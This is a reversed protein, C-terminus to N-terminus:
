NPPDSRGSRLSDFICITNRICPAATKAQERPIIVCTHTRMDANCYKCLEMSDFFTLPKEISGSKIRTATSSPGSSSGSWSPLCPSPFSNRRPAVGEARQLVQLSIPESLVSVGPGTRIARATQPAAVKTRNMAKESRDSDSKPGEHATEDSETSTSEGHTTTRSDDDKDNETEHVTVTAISQSATMGPKRSADRDQGSSRRRVENRKRGTITGARRNRAAKVRLAELAGEAASSNGLRPTSTGNGKVGQSSRASPEGAAAKLARIAPDLRSSSERRIRVQDETTFPPSRPSASHSRDPMRMLMAEPDARHDIGSVIWDDDSGKGSMSGGDEGGSEDDTGSEGSLRANMAREEEEEQARRSAEEWERVVGRLRERELEYGEREKRWGEEFKTRWTEWRDEAMKGAQGAADAVRTSMDRELAGIKDELLKVTTSAEDHQQQLNRSMELAQELDVSLNRSLELAQELDISLADLRAALATNRALIEENSPKEKSALSSLSRNSSSRNMFSSSRSRPSSADEGNHESGTPRQERDSKSGQDGREHSDDDEHTSRAHLQNQVHTEFELKSAEMQQRLGVVEHKVAEHEALLTELSRIRDKHSSLISQTSSLQAQLAAITATPDGVAHDPVGPVYVPKADYPQFQPPIQKVALGNENPPQQAIELVEDAWHCSLV